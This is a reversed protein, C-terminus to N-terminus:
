RNGKLLAAVISWTWVYMGDTALATTPRRCRKDAYGALLFYPKREEQAIKVEAAVGNATDTHEGCLVVVQEVKKIRQRVKEKWDGQLAEKVSMDTVDFPTDDHKAQGVFLNKLGEDHDFDFSVFIMTKKM